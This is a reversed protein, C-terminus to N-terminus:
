QFTTLSVVKGIDKKITLYSTMRACGLYKLPNSDAEEEEEISRESGECEMRTYSLDTGKLNLFGLYVM